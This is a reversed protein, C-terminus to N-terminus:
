KAWSGFRPPQCCLCSGDRKKFSSRSALLPQPIKGLGGVLYHCLRAKRLFLNIGLTVSNPSPNQLFLCFIWGMGEQLSQYLYGAEGKCPWGKRVTRSHQGSDQILGLDRLSHPARLAPSVAPNKGADSEWEGPM